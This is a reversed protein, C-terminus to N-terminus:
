TWNEKYNDFYETWHKGLSYHSYDPNHRIIIGQHELVKLHRYITRQSLQKDEDIIGMHFAREIQHVSVAEGYNRMFYELIRFPGTYFSEEQDPDIVRIMLPYLDLYPSYLNSFAIADIDTFQEKNNLKCWAEAFKMSALEARGPTLHEDFLKVLIKNPKFDYQRPIAVCDPLIFRPQYKKTDTMLPNVLMFKTFRDSAISNWNDSEKMLKRFKFPQIAILIVLDCDEIKILQTSMGVKFYREFKRDTQVKSAIAMLLERHYDSLMSWEEVTWILTKGIQMGIRELLEYYTVANWNDIKINPLIGAKKASELAEIISYIMHTKGKGSSGVDFNSQGALVCLLNYSLPVGLGKHTTEIQKIIGLLNELLNVSRKGFRAFIILSLTM